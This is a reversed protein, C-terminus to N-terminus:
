VAVLIHSVRDMTIRDLERQFSAIVDDFSAEPVPTQEILEEHAAAEERRCTILERWSNTLDQYETNIQDRIVQARAIYTEFSMGDIAEAVNAYFGREIENDRLGSPADCYEGYLQGLVCLQPNAVDLRDLNIKDEWGPNLADLARAGASVREQITDIM